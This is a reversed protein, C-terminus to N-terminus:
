EMEFYKMEKKHTTNRKETKLQTAKKAIGDRLIEDSLSPDYLANEKIREEFFPSQQNMLSSEDFVLVLTQLNTQEELSFIDAPINEFFGGDIFTIEKGINDKNKAYEGLVSAELIVPKLVIPLAASAMVALCVDLNPTNTHNFYCTQGDPVRTATVVLNKFKEPYKTHLVNLMSFTLLNNEKFQKIIQDDLQKSSFYGTISEKIKERLLNLLPVGDKGIPMVGGGLLAKFDNEKAIKEIEDASVGTAVLLGTIAGISSGAINKLQDKFSIAQDNSFNEFAKIVGPLVVGKAGGGSIVLNEIPPAKELLIFKNLKLDYIIQKDDNLVFLVYQDNEVLDKILGKESRFSMM